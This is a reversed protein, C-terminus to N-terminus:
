RRARRRLGAIGALGALLTAWTAPEPVPATSNVWGHLAEYEGHEDFQRVTVGPSFDLALQVGFDADFPAGSPTYVIEGTAAVRSRLDLAAWLGVFSECYTKGVPCSPNLLTGTVTFVQDTASTEVRWLAPALGPVQGVGQDTNALVAYGQLGNVLGNGSVASGDNGAMAGDVTMRLTVTVPEVRDAAYRVEFSEVVEAWTYGSVWAHRRYPGNDYGAYSSSASIALAGASRKASAARHGGFALGDPDAPTQLTGTSDFRVAASAVGDYVQISASSPDGSVQVSQVEAGDRWGHGISQGGVLDWTSYLGVTSGVQARGASAAVPTLLAAAALCTAIPRLGTRRDPSSRHTTRPKPAHM